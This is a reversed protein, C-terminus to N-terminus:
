YDDDEKIIEAKLLLKTAREVVDERDLSLVELSALLQVEAAESLVTEDFGQDTVEHALHNAVCVVHALLDGLSADPNHHFRVADTISRPIEWLELLMAGLEAHDVEVLEREATTVLLNNERALTFQEHDLVNNLVIQGIDHLLAATVVEAGVAKSSMRCIAEAVYSCTISHGWLEGPALDYAALPQQTEAGLASSTAIALVRALGLRMIAAEVTVIESAPASAASNSERLLAAILSPDERLISSVEDIQSTEDAIVSALRSVTAPLPRMAEALDLLHHHLDLTGAGFM